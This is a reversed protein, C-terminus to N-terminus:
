NFRQSIQPKKAFATASFAFPGANAGVRESYNL